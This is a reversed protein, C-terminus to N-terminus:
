PPSAAFLTQAVFAAGLLTTGRWIVRHLADKLAGQAAFADTVAVASLHRLRLLDRGVVTIVAFVLAPHLGSWPSALAWAAVGACALVVV